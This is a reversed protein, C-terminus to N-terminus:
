QLNKEKLVKFIDHWEGTDQLTEASFDASLKIPKRNYTNNEKRKSSKFNETDNIKAM